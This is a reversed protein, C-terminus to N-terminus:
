VHARGIQLGTKRDKVAEGGLVLVFRGSDTAPQDQSEAQAPLVAALAVAGLGCLWLAINRFGFPRLTQETHGGSVDKDRTKM